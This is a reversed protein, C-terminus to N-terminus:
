VDIQIEIDRATITYAVFEYLIWSELSMSFILHFPHIHLLNTYIQPLLEIQDCTIKTIVAMGKIDDVKVLSPHLQVAAQIYCSKALDTVVKATLFSSTLIM